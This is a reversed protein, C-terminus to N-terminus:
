MKNFVIQKFATSISIKAHYRITSKVWQQGHLEKMITTLASYIGLYPQTQTLPVSGNTGNSRNAYPNNRIKKRLRNSM